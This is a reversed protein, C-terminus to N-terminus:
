VFLFSICLCLLQAGMQKNYYWEPEFSSIGLYMRFKQQFQRM